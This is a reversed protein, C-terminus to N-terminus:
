EIDVVRINLEKLLYKNTLQEMKESYLMQLGIQKESLKIAEDQMEYAVEDEEVGISVCGAFKSTLEMHQEYVNKMVDLKREVFKKNLFLGQDMSHDLEYQPNMSRSYFGIKESERNLVSVANRCVTVALGNKQFKDIIARVLRETGIAYQVQITEEGKLEIGIEECSELYSQVYVDAMEDIKDMSMSSLFAVTKYEQQSVPEGYLYLYGDDLLDSQMIIDKAFSKQSNMKEEMREAVFVDCYDSAFWYVVDKLNKYNPIDVDEFYNYIEIFLENCITLYSLRMEYAYAIQARMETYLFSLFQGMEQGFLSVTYAPNAYSKEYNEARIDDYVSENERKLQEADYNELSRKCTERYIDNVNLLFKAVFRFYDRYLPAVTEEELMRGIREITLEHRENMLVDGLM